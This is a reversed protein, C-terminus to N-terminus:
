VMLNITHAPIEKNVSDKYKGSGFLLIDLLMQDNLNKLSVDIKFLGNLLKQRNGAFYACRLFFHDTIKNESGYDCM